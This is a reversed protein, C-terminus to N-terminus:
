GLDNGAKEHEEDAVQATVDLGDKYDPEDGYREYGSSVGARHGVHDVDCGVKGPRNEGERLCDM